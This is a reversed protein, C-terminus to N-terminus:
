FAPRNGTRGERGEGHPIPRSDWDVRALYREDLALRFETSQYGPTAFLDAYTQAFSAYRRWKRAARPDAILFITNGRDRGFTTEIQTNQQSVIDRVRHAVEARRVYWVYESYDSVTNVEDLLEIAAMAGGAIIMKPDLQEIVRSVESRSMRVVLQADSALSRAACLLTLAKQPNILTFGAYHPQVAGIEVLRRLAYAATASAVGAEFALEEVSSWRRRGEQVAADVLERWVM